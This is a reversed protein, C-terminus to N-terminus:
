KIYLGYTTRNATVKKSGTIFKLRNVGTYNKGAITVSGEMMFIRKGQPVTVEDGQMLKFPELKDILPLYNTNMFPTFCFFEYYSDNILEYRGAPVYRDHDFAGEEIIQIDGTDVNRFKITNKTVVNYHPLDSYYNVINNLIPESNIVDGPQVKNQLAVLEFAGHTIIEM